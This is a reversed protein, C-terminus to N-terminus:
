CGNVSGEVPFNRYGRRGRDCAIENSIEGISRLRHAFHFSETSQVARVTWELLANAMQSSEVHKPGTQRLARIARM